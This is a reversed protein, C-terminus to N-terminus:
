DNLIEKIVEGAVDLQLIEQIAFGPCPNVELILAGKESHILDVGAYGLSFARTAAIAYQTEETSPSYLQATGGLHLNARFGGDKSSRKMAGVVRKGVVFLRLDEGKSEAIYEQLLFTNEDPFEAKYREYEDDSNLLAVGNGQNGCFVKAVIPYCNPSKHRDLVESKPTPVGLAALTKYTINKDFAQLINSLQARKKGKLRGLVKEFAHLTSPGIRYLVKDAENIAGILQPDYVSIIKASVGSNQATALLLLAGPQSHDKSVILISMM